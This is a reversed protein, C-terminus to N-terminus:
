KFDNSNDDIRYKQRIGGVPKLTLFAYLITQEYSDYDGNINKRSRPTIEKEVMLDLNWCSDDINLGIGQRSRVKEKINYNEYYKLSYDKAFKYSASYGYSELDVRDNFDNETARTNNYNATLVFDEYKFSTSASSEVITKDQMNYIVKGSISGYDHNLKLYNEYDQAKAEDFSDYIISQSMKHNVIQKLSEKDYISQNLNLDVTKNDKITPFDKLEDYRAADNKTVTIGYIDGDKRINKPVDYSARLNVTHIYDTYPRILDSGIFFSTKNQILTGNDYKYKSNDYNYQTLTSSNEVGIYMYDDLINKSYSIPLNLEYIDATIGERRTYNYYKADLSYILSDLFLEQNYIHGHLQPLEQMTQANSKRGADIYYKGYAGGYYNPTNYFYNLKSEVKKDTTTEYDNDELTIYEVDNLYRLSAYLGDEHNNKSALIGRREYNLNVGYHESNELGEKEQYKPKEKFYGTKIKLMSNPSDAYRFYSYVGAGRLTRVQPIVEIDYNDAPAFFIPQSYYIGESKSYGILPLLLGTRRTTDTPFGWYPLYFVPINKFYLRPNYANIWMNETDYDASSTRISWDPDICDCSSIITGDLKVIEKNKRSEKANTWISNKEEMLFTPSQNFIENKLDVYAYNSQTQINNDKIILVNDFLEFNESDQHFVVKDASLYYTPSYIVVNGTATIINDKTDVNQALLQYKENKIEVSYLLSSTIILSSIIRRM